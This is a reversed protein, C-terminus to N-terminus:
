IRAAEENSNAAAFQGDRYGKLYAASEAAEVEPAPERRLEPLHMARKLGPYRVVLGRAELNVMLRHVGSKSRLGIADKMEDFSPVVGDVEISSKLFKYLKRQM